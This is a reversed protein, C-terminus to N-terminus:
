CGAPQNRKHPMSCKARAHTHRIYVHILLIAFHITLKRTNDQFERLLQCTHTVVLYVKIQETFALLLHTTNHIFQCSSAAIAWHAIGSSVLSSVSSSWTTTPCAAVMQWWNDLRSALRCAIIIDGAMTLASIWAMLLVFSKSVIRQVAPVSCLRECWLRPRSAM